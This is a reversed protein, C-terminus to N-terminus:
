KNLTKFAEPNERAKKLLVRKFTLVSGKDFGCEKAEFSAVPTKDYMLTVQSVDGNEIASWEDDSIAGGKDSPFMRVFNKNDESLKWYSRDDSFNPDTQYLDLAVRVFCDEYGAPIEQLTSISAKKEMMSRRLSKWDYSM